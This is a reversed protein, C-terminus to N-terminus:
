RKEEAKEKWQEDFLKTAELIKGKLGKLVKTDEMKDGMGEIGREKARFYEEQFCEMNGQRDETTYDEHDKPLKDPNDRVFNRFQIQDQGRTEDSSFTKPFLFEQFKPGTLIDALNKLGNKALYGGDRNFTFALRVRDTYSHKWGIDGSPLSTKERDKGREYIEVSKGFASKKMEKKDFHIKYVANEDRPERWGYFKGGDMSTWKAHHFYMYRRLLFFLDAVSDSNQCFLDIGYVVSMITLDPLARYLRSLAKFASISNEAISLPTVRAPQKFSIILIDKELKLVAKKRNDDDVGLRAKKQKIESHTYDGSFKIRHLFPVIETIGVLAHRVIELQLGKPSKKFPIRRTAPSRPRKRPFRVGTLGVLKLYDDSKALAKRIKAVMTWVTKYDADWYKEFNRIGANDKTIGMVYIMLFWRSLPTRIGHFITKATLSAQYGCNRCQFINRRNKNRYPEKKSDCGECKFGNPWRWEKLRDLCAKETEFEKKFKEFEKITESLEREKEPTAEKDNNGPLSYLFAEEIGFSLLHRREEEKIVEDIDSLDM